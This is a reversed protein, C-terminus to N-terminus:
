KKELRYFPLKVVVADAPKGALDVVLSTGPEAHEADVYAMAISKQVTPGFTGSTVEGVPKGSHLVAAHQRAIRKGDLELGVLKRRPGQEAVKRLADAGIFDKNLEVCWGLGASITDTQENLEHGYLPMGAELRLTDRAGLGAPKIADESDDHNSIWGAALSAVMAPLIIEVGDEGTYGSRFITYPVFMHTGSLFRYKKLEGIPMPLKRSLREVALPGQIAVMMTSETKDDIKVDPGHQRLWSLIKARNAGNCVVLWHDAYKSVIVDDLIGGNENCVHSYRSQGVAADGLQRTCVRQLLAEAGDGRLELRGMHSIDFVSAAKRTHVHEEVISTYLLPLEWGAFEVMRGGRQVHFDYLPTRLM